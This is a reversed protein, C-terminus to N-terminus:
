MTKSSRLVVSVELPSDWQTIVNSKSVNFKCSKFCFCGEPLFGDRFMSQTM